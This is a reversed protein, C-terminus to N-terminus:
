FRGSLLMGTTANGTMPTIAIRDVLDNRLFVKNKAALGTIMLIAGALQMGGLGALAVKVKAEHERRMQLFPGAFPIVLARLQNERYAGETGPTEPPDGTAGLTLCIAYSAAFTIAGGIILGKRARLVPTYGLPPPRTDDYDLIKPPRRLTANPPVDTASQAPDAVQPPAAWARGAAHLVTITVIAVLSPCPTRFATM